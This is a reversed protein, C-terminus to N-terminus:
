ALDSIDIRNEQGNVFTEMQDSNILNNVSVHYLGEEMGDITMENFAPNPYFSISSGGESTIEDVSLVSDSVRASSGGVTVGTKECNDENDSPSGGVARISARLKYATGATRAPVGNFTVAATGSGATVTTRAGAIWGSPGLLAVVVDRRGSAVYSVNVTFGGTAPISSRVNTCTVTNSGGPNSNGGGNAKDLSQVQLIASSVHGGGDPFSVEVKPNRIGKVLNFDVPIELVGFFRSRKSQNDGRVVDGSYNVKKGNIWVQPRRNASLDRGVGLRLTALGGNGATVGNFQFAIRQNARIPQLYTKTYYKKSVIKNNFTIPANFTYTLVATEGYELSINKPANNVTRNTLKPLKDVPVKLQKINVNQLGQTNILNLNVTQKLDNLNNLMVYLKRGDVFAQTQVDINSSNIRVRKGKLDKLMEYFFRRQSLVVQGNNNQTWLSAKAYIFTPDTGRNTNFPIGMEFHDGREMFNMVMHLQSRVAQANTAADYNSVGNNPTWNPQNPVLRGYETVAINKVVGLKKFSYAEIIDLLAESNSGSRRGSSNNVGSGDYLHISFLDMEEGAIDIFKKYRNNWFQFNQSEFEPFASAYGMVKINRLEPTAHIAEGVYKHYNCMDTIIKNNKAPVANGPYFDRAKVMPENMPEFYKGPNAWEKKLSNAVYGALRRSYNNINRASYDVNKDYFLDTPRGGTVYWPDVKRVGSHINKVTPINGNTVRSAPNTLTRGGIYDPHFNYETKLNKFKQDQQNRITLYAHVYKTRDLQSVNNIFRQTKHEIRVSGQAFVSLNLYVCLCGILVRISFKM